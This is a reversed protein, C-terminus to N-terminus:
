DCCNFRWVTEQHMTEKVQFSKIAYRRCCWGSKLSVTEDELSGIETLMRMQQNVKSQKAQVM